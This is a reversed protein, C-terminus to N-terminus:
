PTPRKERHLPRSEAVTYRGNVAIAVEHVGIGSKEDVGVGLNPLLGCLVPAVPLIRDDREDVTSQVEAAWELGGPLQRLCPGARFEDHEIASSM